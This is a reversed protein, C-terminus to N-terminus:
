RLDNLANGFSEITDDVDKESMATSLFFGGAARAFIGRNLLALHLSLMAERDARLATRYDRVPQDTLHLGVLSGVGTVQGPIKRDRFVGRLGDRLRDGLANIRAIEAEPYAELAALGAAVTAANGAFTGSHHVPHPSAPDFGAMIDARGGFAGVPLGGGIIKGFTTLDPTVGFLQQAGGGALRFTVVEDVLLLVGCEATVERLGEIFVRDAPILGRVMVPEVLVVALDHRHKRIIESAVGLDNFPAVLTHASVEPPLGPGGAVGLPFAPASAGPNVSVTVSDYGGHYSGEMKLIKARGTFARAARVAYLVAETGSNAFRIREVSSVRQMIARALALHLETPTGFDTGKAAQAALARAVAPHAHGHIMSGFNNLLDVYEHGDVDTVRCGCGEAIYTPYPPHYTVSRTVGGPFLDLAERHLAASHPTRARYASEIEARKSHMTMRMEDGEGTPLPTLPSTEPSIVMEKVERRSIKGVANHPLRDVFHIRKPAKVSDLEEKVFGILEAETARVGDKLRVAAHVAEGWKPDDMGFVSCEGVAPHRCLASEVDAPFVNFGGSIIVERTRGKLYLYGREDIVGIDGTHLWGEIITQATLDPQDLYGSMVLDGRVVVEGVEGKALLSGRRNMIALEVPPVARGVSELNREDAFDAARMATVIQPVEVQGYATELVPGFAARVARIREPPMPAASYLLHRLSPYGARRLGPEALLMYILTPPLYVSTVGWRDLAELINAPTPKALMVHRGGAGLVPLLFCSTGHTIPAAVLNVDTSNFEFARGIAVAQANICRVPQRIAKPRGTSGGSFKIVQDDELGREIRVPKRGANRQILGGLQGSRILRATVTPLKQICSEDVVIIGPRTAAVMAGIEATGNRPNLPVWVKGAAYTALLATLHERTNWACTGVRSGPTPDMDQFAAALAEVGEVLEAYTLREDATEM